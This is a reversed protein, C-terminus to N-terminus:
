FEIPLYTVTVTFDGTTGDNTVRLPFAATPSPSTANVAMSPTGPIITLTSGTHITEVVVGASTSPDVDRTRAGDNGMSVADTYLRVWGPRNVTVGIIVCSRTMTLTGTAVGNAALAPLTVSATARAAFGSNALRTGRLILVPNLGGATPLPTEIEAIVWANQLITSLSIVPTHTSSNVAGVPIRPNTSFVSTGDATVNVILPNTAITSFPECAVFASELKFDFPMAFSAVMGASLSAGRALLPIMFEEASSVGQGGNIITSINIDTRNNGPNDIAQVGGGNFNLTPRNPLLTGEDAINLQAGSITIDTRNAGGNDVATVNAGLFNLLPRSTLVSGEDAISVHNVTINTRNNGSDDTASIANGTFNLTTRTTLSTGEDQVGVTGGSITVDTRGAGPNDTATVGTGIFNITSRAPLNSGEEAFIIASGPITIDTRNAASNDTATVGTGIFNLRARPTLTIGEDSVPIGNTAAIYALLTQITARIEEGTSTDHLYVLDDIALTSGPPFDLLRAAPM